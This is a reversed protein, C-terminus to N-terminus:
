ETRAWIQTDRPTGSVDLAFNKLTGELTFGCRQAVAASRTNRADCRIEIRRMHLSALAMETVANVTESMYGRGAHHSHLWYGIECKPVSWDLHHLSVSGVLFPTQRLWLRYSIEERTIFNAMMTRTFAESEDVTPMNQAWPMWPQLEQFSARVAENLMLGEGARPAHLTLRPTVIEEPVDLLLPNMSTRDFDPQSKIPRISDGSSLIADVRLRINIDQEPTPSIQFSGFQPRRPQRPQAQGENQEQANNLRPPRQAAAEIEPCVGGNAAPDGIV